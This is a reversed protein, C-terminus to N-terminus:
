KLRNDGLQITCGDLQVCLDETGICEIALTHQRDSQPNPNRTSFEILGEAYIAVDAIIKGQANLMDIYQIQDDSRANVVLKPTKKKSAM